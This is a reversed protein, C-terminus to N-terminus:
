KYCNSNKPYKRNKVDKLFTNISLHIIKKLNAYKKLFKADFETLGLIDETVLVQGQCNFSAGIGIIPINCEKIIKDVLSKITCEVVIAFVETSKLYEFDRFFQKKEKTTKGYVRYKGKLSQPLMGIHGMVNINNKTLHKIIEFIDEGGELKVATAGSEFLIRKANKLAKRKSNEYTGFPMDVVVISKRVNKVVATAHRVITEIDVERTSKYGYLVPGVSDGVLVIDAYKDVIRAIPATYATLCVIPLQIKKLRSELFSRQTNLNL